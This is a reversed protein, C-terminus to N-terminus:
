VASLCILNIDLVTLYVERAGAITLRHVLLKHRLCYDPPIVQLAQAYFPQAKRSMDSQQYICAM